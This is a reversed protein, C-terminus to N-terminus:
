FKKLKSLQNKRRIGMKRVKRWYEKTDPDLEELSPAKGPFYFTSGEISTGYTYPVHQHASYIFGKGRKLHELIVVNIFVFNDRHMILGKRNYTSIISVTVTSGHIFTSIQDVFNREPKEPRINIM